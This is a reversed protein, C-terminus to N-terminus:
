FPVDAGTFLEGLEADSMPAAQQAPQPAPQAPKQVPAPAQQVPAVTPAMAVKGFPAAASVAPAATAVRNADQGIIMLAQDSQGLEVARAYQQENLFGAAEFCLVPAASNIDFSVKTVVANYPIGRMALAKTYQGLARLSAPPVRLLFVEQDSGTIVALRVSDSCAKGKGFGGAENRATGFANHKCLACSECQPNQVSADPKVGNNSFCTPKHDEANETFGHAYYTKVKGPSSNAIIVAISSAPATKDDPRTLVQREGDRVVAFVKGKISITPFGTSLSALMNNIAAAGQAQQLFAPLPASSINVLDNM